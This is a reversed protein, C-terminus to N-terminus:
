EAGKGGGAGMIVGSIGWLASEREGMRKKTRTGGNGWEVIKRELVDFISFFDLDLDRVRPPPLSPPTTKRRVKQFFFFFNPLPMFPGLGYCISFFIISFFTPLDTRFLPNPTSFPFIPLTHPIYVHGTTAYRGGGMGVRTRKKKKKREFNREGM